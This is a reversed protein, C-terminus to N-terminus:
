ALLYNWGQIAVLLRLLYNVDESDLGLANRDLPGAYQIRVLGRAEVVPGQDGPRVHFDGRLLVGLDRGNLTGSCALLDTDTDSSRRSAARFIFARPAHTSIFEEAQGETVGLAEALEDLPTAELFAPVFADHLEGGVLFDPPGFALRARPPSGGQFRLRLLVQLTEDDDSQAFAGRTNLLLAVESECGTVGYDSMLPDLFRRKGNPPTGRTRNTISCYTESLCRVMQWVENPEDSEGFPPRIPEEAGSMLDQGVWAALENLLDLFPALPWRPGRIRGSGLASYRLDAGDPGAGPHTIALVETGRLRLLLTNTPTAGPGAFKSLEEPTPRPILFPPRILRFALDEPRLDGTRPPDPSPEIRYQVRGRLLIENRGPRRIFLLVYRDERRVLQFQWDFSASRLLVYREGTQLDPLLGGASDVGLQRAAVPVESAISELTDLFVGFEVDAEAM